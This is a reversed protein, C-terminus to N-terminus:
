IPWGCRWVAALMDVQLQRRQLALHQDEHKAVCHALENKITAVDTSREIFSHRAGVQSQLRKSMVPQATPSFNGHQIFATGQQLHPRM